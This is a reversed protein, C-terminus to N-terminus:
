YFLFKSNANSFAVNAKDTQSENSNKRIHDKEYIVFPYIEQLKVKIFFALDSGLDKQLL